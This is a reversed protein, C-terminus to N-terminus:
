SVFRDNWFNSSTRKRKLSDNSPLKARWLYFYTRILNGLFKPRRIETQRSCLRHLSEIKKKMWLPCVAFSLLKGPSGHSAQKISLFKAVCFVWFDCCSIVKSYRCENLAVRFDKSSIQTLNWDYLSLSASTKLPLVEDSPLAFTLLLRCQVTSM